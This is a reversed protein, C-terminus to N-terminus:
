NLSLIPTQCGNERRLQSGRPLSRQQRNSKLSSSYGQEAVPQIYCLVCQTRKTSETVAIKWGDNLFDIADALSPLRKCWTRQVGQSFHAESVEPNM